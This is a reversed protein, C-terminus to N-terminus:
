PCDPGTFLAGVSLDPEWLWSVGADNTWVLDEGTQHIEGRHWDNVVPTM